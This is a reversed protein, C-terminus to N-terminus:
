KGKKTRCVHGFPLGIQSKHFLIAGSDSYSHKRQSMGALLSGGVYATEERTCEHTEKILLFKIIICIEHHMLEHPAWAQRVGKKKTIRAWICLVKPIMEGNANGVPIREGYKREAWCLWQSCVRSKLRFSRVFPFPFVQWVKLCNLKLDNIKLQPESLLMKINANSLFRLWSM